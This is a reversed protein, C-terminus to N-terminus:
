ENSIPRQLDDAYRANAGTFVYGPTPGIENLQPIHDNNIDNWTRQDNVTAVPNLREIMSINIPQNYRNAAFKLATRGDGGLDYVLNFRPSLDKFTPAETREYCAGAAFQTDPRCSAPQFSSNTEYRLGLNVVPKRFPTWRDQVFLGHGDARFRYLENIDAGYTTNSGTVQVLYTNQLAPPRFRVTV